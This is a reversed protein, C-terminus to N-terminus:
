KKDQANKDQLRVAQKKAVHQSLREVLASPKLQDNNYDPVGHKWLLARLRREVPGTTLADGPDRRPEPQGLRADIAGLLDEASANQPVAAHIQAALAGLDKTLQSRVPADLTAYDEPARLQLRNADPTAASPFQRPPASSKPALFKACLALVAMLVLLVVGLRWTQSRSRRAFMADLDPQRGAEAAIQLNLEYSGEPYEAAQEETVYGEYEIASLRPAVAAHFGLANSFAFSAPWLESRTSTPLLKWLSKILGTDPLPRQFVLRGGDVLVQVGGLLAPCEPRKLVDQIEAVTRQPLPEAPWTLSPLDGRTSWPPPCREALVFPDGVHRVYAARPVILLYFGLAGPQGADPAQDAVQVVAVHLKGFPQAFVCAPCAVGAPREGFRTCLEEALALWNEDFGASRTLLRYGGEEHATYIAQEIVIQKM